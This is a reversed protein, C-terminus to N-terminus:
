RRASVKCNCAVCPDNPDAFQAGSEYMRGAFTCPQGWASVNGMPCLDDCHPCCDGIAQVPNDCLLPPCKMEWCDVEGYLCECTQCQYSWQEGHMLVVDPLEQHKCAHREDCQPCCRNQRSGPLSCNCRPKECKMVGRDCTCSQCPDQQPSLSLGHAVEAGEFMCSLRCNPTGPPCECRFGGNLNVCQASPHCTHLEDACEDIDLCSRDSL